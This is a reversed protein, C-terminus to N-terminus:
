REMNRKKQLHKQYYELAKVIYEETKQAGMHNPLLKRIKETHLVVRESQNPKEESLIESIKSKSLCGMRSLEKMTIGQSLSPTAGWREIMDSLLTQESKSLYSLEVATRLGINGEDVIDLLPRILNTLRIYRKIQTESESVQEALEKNSRLSFKPGVPGSTEVRKGQHKMAELRMKYSFAKESPLIRSRQFNSEVMMIIAEDKTLSYIEAPLTEIQLIECAKKRRHGAIMEYRGDEKTRLLVPVLIGNCRISEILREMDEDMRVQFPHDPFDDIQALAISRIEHSRVPIQQLGTIESSKKQQDSATEQDHM